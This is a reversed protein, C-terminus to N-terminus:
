KRAVNISDDIISSFSQAFVLLPPRSNKVDKWVGGAMHSFFYQSDHSHVQRKYLQDKM